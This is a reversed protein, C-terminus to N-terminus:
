LDPTPPSTTSTTSDVIGSKELYYEVNKRIDIDLFSIDYTFAECGTKGFKTEISGSYFNDENNFTSKIFGSAQDQDATLPQSLNQTYDQGNNGAMLYVSGTVNIGEFLFGSGGGGIIHWWGRWDM